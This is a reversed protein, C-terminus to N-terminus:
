GFPGPDKEGKWNPDFPGPSPSSGITLPIAQNVLEFRWIGDNKSAVMRAANLPSFQLARALATKLRSTELPQPVAWTNIM